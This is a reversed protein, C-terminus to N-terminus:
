SGKGTTRQREAALLLRAAAEVTHKAQWQLIRAAKEPRAGSVAIDSPRIFMKDQKIHEKWDLGCYGFVAATFDRLSCTHSTGFVRYGKDM